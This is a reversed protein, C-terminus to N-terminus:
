AEFKVESRNSKRTFAREVWFRLAILSPTLILTLLTAFGLGWVLATALPKWWLSTPADLTYGGNAFDVSFGLMMPTVGLITTGTTLLIPRIRSEATRVIAELYDHKRRYENFADILIINNNVIIGALALVGTGTMVSYFPQGMIFIGVFVGATSFIVASLILLSNYFSNFQALLIILMLGLSAIFGVALFQGFEAQDAFDGAVEFSVGTPLNNANLWEIFKSVRETPNYGDEVDASLTYYREQDYRAIEARAPQAGIEAFNSIPVLGLPTRVKITEITSILRDSEPLRAKIDVEEDAGDIRMQGLTIGNTALTIMGGVTSVDTGYRGAEATDIDIRYDIGPLPRTDEIEVIGGMTELYETAQTVATELVDFDDGILRINIPKAGAPGRSLNLSTVKIGPVRNAAAEVNLLIAYGRGEEPPWEYRVQWDELELAIRGITDAPAEGGGTNQNLGGSGSFVFATKVGRVKSIEAEVASIIRDKEDLSLNGRAQIYLNAREPESDPFFEFGKGNAFFFMPSGVLMVLAVVVVIGIKAPSKVINQLFYGFRSRAYTKDKIEETQSPSLANGFISLCILAFILIVFGLLIQSSFLPFLSIFAVGIFFFIFIWLTAKSLRKGLSISWNQFLRALRGTVGGMVPLFILAVVLSACLVFIITKPLNAMFQGAVGPAVLLPLFACLTTATSSIVPWAMRKAANTYAQMPGAGRKIEQDAYEVIVIASDVLMGVALILGFMIINSITIGLVAFLVFTLLFSTPIAFGVLLASRTGLAGLVAIMVLLIATIVSAELQSVMGQVDKSQDNTLETKITARTNEDWGARTIEIQSAIQAVTDIINEGKRKVVQIALTDEGNFRAYARPDEFTLRIKTVDGLKIISDGNVKVPLNYVDLPSEFSSPIKISFEGAGTKVSGAAILQNNARVANILESATLNYNELAELDIEVEVMENRAGTLEAELVSSLGLIDDRLDKAAAVLAREPVDGSVSVVAIPFESFNIENISYSDVIDPLEGEAQSMEDRIDAIISEKDWGFDFELAIGGYGEAATSQISKLGTIGSLRTELPKVILRESDEASIGPAPISVFIFPIEIDPEGEKPLNLYSLLGFALSMFIFLLTMRARASAWEIIAIM